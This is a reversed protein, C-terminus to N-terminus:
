GRNKEMLTTMTDIVVAYVADRLKSDFIAMNGDIIADMEALDLGVWERKAVTASVAEMRMAAEREIRNFEDDETNM